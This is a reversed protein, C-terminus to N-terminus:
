FPCCLHPLSPTIGLTHINFPFKCAHICLLRQIIVLDDEQMTVSTLDSHIHDRTDWDARLIVLIDDGAEVEDETQEQREQQEGPRKLGTKATLIM